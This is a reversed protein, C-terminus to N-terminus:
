GESSLKCNAKIQEDIEEFTPVYPKWNNIALVLLTLFEKTEPTLEIDHFPHKNM